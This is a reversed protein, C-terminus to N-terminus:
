IDLLWWDSKGFPDLDDRWDGFSELDKWDGFIVVLFSETGKWSGVRWFKQFRGFGLWILYGVVRCGGLVWWFKGLDKLVELVPGGFAWCQGLYAALM